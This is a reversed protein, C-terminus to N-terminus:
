ETGHGLPVAPQKAFHHSRPIRDQKDPQHILFQRIKHWDVEDDPSGMADFIQVVHEWDEENEITFRVNDQDLGEPAPILEIAHGSNELFYLGPFERYIPNSVRSAAHRLAKVQYWEPFMGFPRGAAFCYNQFKYAAYQCPTKKEAAHILRDVITSDILPWDMGILVCSEANYSELAELVAKLTESSKTLYVPIDPPTIMRIFANEESHDTVIIVGNLRCSDTMHRAVWELVPRGSLRRGAQHRQRETALLGNIIGLTGLM